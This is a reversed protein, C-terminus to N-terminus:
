PGTRYPKKQVTVVVNTMYPTTLAPYWVSNLRIYGPAFLTNPLNTQTYSTGNGALTVQFANTRWNVGDDSQDWTTVGTGTGAGSLQYGFTIDFMDYNVLSVLGPVNVIVNTTTTYMNTAVGNVIMWNANTTISTTNTVTTAFTSNTAVCNNTGGAFGAVAVVNYVSPSGVTFTSSSQAQGSLTFGLLALLLWLAASKGAKEFFRALANYTWPLIKVTGDAPITIGDVTLDHGAVNTVEILEPAKYGKLAETFKILRQATEYYKDSKPVLKLDVVLKQKDELALAKIENETKM